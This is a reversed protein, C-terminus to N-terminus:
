TNLNGEDDDVDDTEGLASTMTGLKQRDQDLEKLYIGNM